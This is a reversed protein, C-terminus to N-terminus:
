VHCNPMLMDSSAVIQVEDSEVTKHGKASKSSQTAIM